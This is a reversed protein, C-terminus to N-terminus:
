RPPSISHVALPPKWRFWGLRGAVTCVLVYPIYSLELLPLYALASPQRIKRTFSWVLLADVVWKAAWVLLAATGSRGPSIAGMLGLLLLLHFVYAGTAVALAPGRYHGAKSAHRLKQHLLGSWSDPAPGSQVAADPAWNYVVRWKTLAAVRRTFYVDDGGILHGIAAFGGVEEYVKRRYALNRGTCSLPAGMGISGAGMAAVAQNDLSLVGRLIGSGSPPLAYGAVLGVDDGFAAVTSRVWGPPPQCDADTFLLIEGESAAIGDSLASKKRCRFPRPSRVRVLRLGDEGADIAQQALHATGDDSEDDVVIIEAVGPYDQAQLARLCGPLAAEENRAPVIVSVSPTAAAGGQERGGFGRRVGAILWAIGFVYAVGLVALVDSIVAM